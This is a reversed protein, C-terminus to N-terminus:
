RPSDVMDPACGARYREGVISTVSRDSPWRMGKRTATASNKALVTMENSIVPNGWQNTIGGPSFWLERAPVRIKGTQVPLNRLGPRGIAGHPRGCRMSPAFICRSPADGVPAGRSRTGRPQAALARPHCSGPWPTGFAFPCRERSLTAPRCCRGDDPPVFCVAGLRGSSREPLAWAM